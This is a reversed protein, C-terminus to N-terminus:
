RSGATLTKNGPVGFPALLRAVKEPQAVERDKMAAIASSRLDHGVAGPTLAGRAFRASQEFLFLEGDHAQKEASEFFEVARARDGEVSALGAEGMKYLVEKVCGKRTSMGKVMARADELYKSQDPGGRQALELAARCRLHSFPVFVMEVRLLMAKKLRPWAGVILRYADDTRGQYMMAHAAGFTGFYHQLQTPANAAWGALLAESGTLAENPEDFAIHHFSPLGAIVSNYAYKDGRAEADKRIATATERLEAPRGLYYLMWMVYNATTVREYTLETKPALLEHALKGHKLSAPYDLSAQYHFNAWTMHRFAELYPTGVKQALADGIDIAVKAKAAKKHGGVSIFGSELCMARAIRSPEGADLALLLSRAQFYASRFNDMWVLTLAASWCADIAALKEVPVDAEAREVFDYGRLAIRIRSWLLRFLAKKPSSPVTEGLPGMVQQMLELGKTVEGNALRYQSALRLREQAEAGEYRAHLWEYQTAADGSRGAHVLAYALQEGIAVAREDRDDDGLDLARRYLEAAREFALQNLAEEAARQAYESAENGRGAGSLHEFLEQNTADGSRIIADAIRGHLDATTSEDLQASIAERIRDHFCQVHEEEGVFTIAAFRQIRLEHLARGLHETQSLIEALRRSSQPTGAVALLDLVGRVDAPLAKARAVILDDLTPISTDVSEQEAAHFVLERLFFPSGQAEAIIANRATEDLAVGEPMANVVETAEHETLPGIHLKTVSRKTQEGDVAKLIDQLVESKGVEEERYSTVFLIPPANESRLLSLLLEYGDRDTWQLDDLYCVTRRHMALQTLLTAFCEFAKQRLVRPDMPPLPTQESDVLKDVVPFLKALPRLDHTLIEARRKRRMRRVTAVLEDVLADFGKYPTTENAYCRGRLVHAKHAKKYRRVFNDVIATKGMGSRGEVMVLSFRGQSVANAAKDLTKLQPRRGAFQKSAKVVSRGSRPSIRLMACLRRYGLRQAPDPHLLGECIADFLPPVGDCLESPPPPVTTAPASPDSRMDAPTRGTLLQYLTAGVSYWDSQPGVADRRLVEPAMYPPTGALSGQLENVQGTVGFDLLVLRGKRTVMINSPKIDRHLLGAAHLAHVGEILQPLLEKLQEPDCHVPTKPGDFAANRTTSTPASPAPALEDGDMTDFGFQSADQHGTNAISRSGDTNRSRSDSDGTDIASDRSYDQTAKRGLRVYDHLTHGDILEMAFFWHEDDGNLEYIGVLNPHAIDALARFEQKLRHLASPAANRVTKIAVPARRHLDFGRYVVGMAGSGIQEDIRYRGQGWLTEGQSAATPESEGNRNM